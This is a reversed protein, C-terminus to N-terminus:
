KDKLNIEVNFIEKNSWILNGIAERPNFSAAWVCPHDQLTAVYYDDKHYSLKREINIKLM